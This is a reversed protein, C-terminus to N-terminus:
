GGQRAAAGSAAALRRALGAFRAEIRNNKVAIALAKRMGVVVVLQKARTLATYLLNRQLLVYHQTHLPIVVAPYESGQAKHISCAYALVLEDLDAYDYRVERGEYRVHMVRDTEDIAAVRGIDGNFVELNYNNRIQMVKDNVRFARSGRAIGVDGPNLLAELEANLNATGLIGRNMPTLVQIDDVPDFGFRAPIRDAVLAKLTALAEEPDDREVLYFDAPQQETVGTPMDGRNVRHANVVILSEAAQRFIETLSVVPLVESRILDRLVSGPGVSPLQDVDGVLILRCQPPVAKLLHYALVTDVMSVEDVILLDADLPNQQDRAFAMAAPSFELLRHITKAERGTAESVRKAARGTPAALLIKLGKRALIQTIANLVTTKGTGPGGTIVLMKSWLGAQVAAAQQPSLEIGQRRELWAIARDIELAIPCAPSSLLAAVCGALGAEARYLSALYVPADALADTAPRELVVRGEAALTTLAAEVTAADVELMAGTEEILQRRPCYVHGEDSREGLMHLIGAEARRPSSREIGLSAAIRDATLFGIGFIDVALRYPNETVVAIARNGYAKYIKIAYTTSVGHSQLFVMVDKIERQEIWAARIHESRVPGIGEVETLREPTRDIIDLTDLGFHRVLRQAMVRGIGRVMGSGLYREIGVLTSPTVTVYSQVRFQEGYRRDAVWVGHLRANEGPQVGLLNGVATVPERRGPVAVRVVTWSTEENAYVIREFVGELTSSHQAAVSPAGAAPTDTRGVPGNHCVPLPLTL